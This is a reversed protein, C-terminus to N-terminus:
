HQARSKSRKGPRPAPPLGDAPYFGFRDALGEVEFLPFRQSRGREDQTDYVRGTFRANFLLPDCFMESCRYTKRQARILKTFEESRFTFRLTASNSGLDVLFSYEDDKLQVGRIDSRALQLQMVKGQLAEKDPSNLLQEYQLAGFELRQAAPIKALLKANDFVADINPYDNVAEAAIYGQQAEAGSSVEARWVGDSLPDGLVRITDGRALVEGGRCARRTRAEEPTGCLYAQSTYVEMAISPAAKCQEDALDTPRPAGDSGSSRTCEPEATHPAGQCAGDSLQTRIVYGHAFRGDRQVYGVHARRPSCAIVQVSTEAQVLQWCRNKQRIQESSCLLSQRLVSASAAPKDSATASQSLMDRHVWGRKDKLAGHPSSVIRVHLWPMPGAQSHARQFENMVAPSSFDVVVETGPVLANGSFGSSEPVEEPKLRRPGSRLDSMLPALETVFLPTGDPFAQTAPSPTQPEPDAGSGTAAPGCAGIPLAVIPLAVSLLGVSLWSAFLSCRM